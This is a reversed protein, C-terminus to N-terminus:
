QKGRSLSLSLRHVAPNIPRSIIISILKNAVCGGVRLTFLICFTYPLTETGILFM